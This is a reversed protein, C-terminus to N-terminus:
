AEFNAVIKDVCGTAKPSPYCSPKIINNLKQENNFVVLKTWRDLMKARIKTKKGPVEAPPPLRGTPTGILIRHM